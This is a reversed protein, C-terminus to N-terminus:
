NKFMSDLILNLGKVAKYVAFCCVIIAAIVIPIFLPKEKNSLGIYALTPGVFMLFAALAMTQIGKYLVKKNTHKTPPKNMNLVIHTLLKESM